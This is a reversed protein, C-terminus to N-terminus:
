PASQLAAVGIRADPPAALAILKLLEGAGRYHSLRKVGAELADMPQAATIAVVLDTGFPEHVEFSWAFDPADIIRADSGIPYLAQVLGDGSIAFLVLTRHAMDALEIEVREGRRRVPAGASVAIQQPRTAALKVLGEAFAMRDIVEPLDAPTVDYAIIEGKSIAQRSGPDYILDPGDGPAVLAFPAAQATMGALVSLDGGAVAVKIEDLKPAKDPAAQLWAPPPPLPTMDDGPDILRVGCLAPALSLAFSLAALPWLLRLAQRRPRGKRHDTSRM